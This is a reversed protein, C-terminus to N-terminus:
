YDPDLKSSCTVSWRDAKRTTDVEGSYIEVPPGLGRSRVQCWLPRLNIRRQIGRIQQLM